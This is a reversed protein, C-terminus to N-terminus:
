ACQRVLQANEDQVARLQARLAQAERGRDKLRAVETHLRASERKAETLERQLRGLAKEEAQRERQESARQALLLSSTRKKLVEAKLRANEEEIASFKGVANRQQQYLADISTCLAGYGEAKPLPAVRRLCLHRREEERAQEEQQSSRTEQFLLGAPQTAVLAATGRPALVAAAVLAFPHVLLRLLLPYCWPLPAM